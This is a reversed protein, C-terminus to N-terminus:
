LYLLPSLYSPHLSPPVKNGKDRCFLCLITPQRNLHSKETLKNHKTTIPLSPLLLVELRTGYKCDSKLQLEEEGIRRFSLRFDITRILQVAPDSHLERAVLVQTVQVVM